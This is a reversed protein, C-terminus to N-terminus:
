VASAVCECVYSVTFVYMRKMRESVWRDALRANNQYTDWTTQVATENRLNRSSQRLEFAENRYTDAINKLQNSRSYWDQLGLHQLPKEYVHHHNNNCAMKSTGGLHCDDRSPVCVCVRFNPFIRNTHPCWVTLTYTFWVTIWNASDCVRKAVCMKRNEENWSVPIGHVFSYRHTLLVVQVCDGLFCFFFFM